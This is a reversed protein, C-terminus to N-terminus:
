LEFDFRTQGETGVPMRWSHPVERCIKVRENFKPFLQWDSKVCGTVLFM